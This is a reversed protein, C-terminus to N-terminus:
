ASDPLTLWRDVLSEVEELYFPKDVYDDAGCGDMVARGAASMLIVPISRTAPDSKLQRCLDRGSLLPMMVDSLVLDPRQGELAELAQRGNAAQLAHHGHESLIAALLLRVPAEDDVVLIIAM